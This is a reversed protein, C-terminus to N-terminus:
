SKINTEIKVKVGSGKAAEFLITGGISNIRSNINFLGLGKKMNMTEFYDFGKGNDTYFLKLKNDLELVSISILDAESYKFSNILLETSIRYLTIEVIEDYRNPANFDCKITIHMFESLKGIFSNLAPVLGFNRLIHPSLNNSIEKVGILSENILDGLKQYSKSENETFKSLRINHLYIKCTSLLPGLGDHLDKAIRGREEEEAKVSAVYVQRELDKRSSIDNLSTVVALQGEYNVKRSRVEVPFTQGSKNRITFESSFTEGEVLRNIELRVKNITTKDFVYEFINVHYLEEESLGSLSLFAQNASLIEFKDNFIFIADSTNNYINKFNEESFKLAAETLELNSIDYGVGMLFRKGDRHYDVATQYLLIGKGSKTRLKAKFYTFGENMAQSIGNMVKEADNEEFLDIPNCDLLEDYTFGTLNQMSENWQVLRKYDEFVYFIGPMTDVVAKVFSREIEIEHELRRIDSMDNFFTQIHGSPLKCSRIELSKVEGSKLNVNRESVLNGGVELMDFRLPNIMLDHASLIGKINKGVIEATEFGTLRSFNESALLVIGNVDSIIVGETTQDLLYRYNLQDIDSKKVALIFSHLLFVITFIILVFFFFLYYYYIVGIEKILLSDLLLYFLVISLFILQSRQPCNKKFLVFFIYILFMGSAILYFLQWGLGDFQFLSYIVVPITFFSYVAVLIDIVKKKM